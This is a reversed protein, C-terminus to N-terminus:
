LRSYTLSSWKRQRVMCWGRAGLGYCGISVEVGVEAFFGWDLVWMIFVVSHFWGFGMPFWLRLEM